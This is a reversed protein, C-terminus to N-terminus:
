SGDRPEEPRANRYVKGIWSKKAGRSCYHTERAGARACAFCPEMGHVPCLHFPKLGRIRRPKEPEKMGHEDRIYFRPGADVMTCSERIIPERDM